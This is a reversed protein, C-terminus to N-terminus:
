ININKYLLPHRYAMNTLSCNLCIRLTKKGFGSSIRISLGFPMPVGSKSTAIKAITMRGRGGKINSKSNEKLIETASRRDYYDDFADDDYENLVDDNDSSMDPVGPDGPGLVRKKAKAM